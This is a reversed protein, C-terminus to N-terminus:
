VGCTNESWRRESLVVVVVTVLAVPSKYSGDDVPNVRTGENVLSVGIDSAGAVSVLSSGVGVGKRAVAASEWNLM